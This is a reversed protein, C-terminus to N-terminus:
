SEMGLLRAVIPLVRDARAQDLSIAEVVRAAGRKAREGIGRREPPQFTSFTRRLLPLLPEFQANDLGAIWDNIAVFLTDDHILIAGSGQLFGEIWAAAEPPSVAPSLALRMRRTIVDPAFTGNDRLLRTARGNVIGNIAGDDAISYLAATWAATHATDALTNLAGHVANLRTFMARAADDDLAYCAPLLGICIRTVLGDVVNRVAEARAATTRVDGYRAVEILAPLADMLIATDTTLAAVDALRRVIQDAADALDALLVHGLHAVIASLENIAESLEIARTVAADRVTNGWRSATILQVIMEPFWQVDWYEHFTGTSRKKGRALRGWAIGLVNLRHLLISCALDRPIRLDFDYPKMETSIKFKLARQQAEFDRQLPVMPTKPPISGIGTGVILRTEILRMPTSDGRCFVALAAENMEDLTPVARGRLGALMEALRVGDIVQATSASLDEGRLLAAVRALWRASVQDPPTHWLHAYWGPSAIGAGYGNQMSLRDDTWPAWTAEVKVSALNKLRETDAKASGKAHRRADSLAPVHWAGCVVAVREHQKEAARITKRMWAERAAERGDDGLIMFSDAAADTEPARLTTMAEAIADFLALPDRQGDADADSVANGQEILSDWWREGDSYGAARALAGLPDRRVAIHEQQMPDLPEAHPEDQTESASDEQNLATDPASDLVSEADAAANQAWALSHKQPLDMFAVPISRSLAYRIAVWEPSFDAFPYWVAQEPQAPNYVLLAVPPQMADDNALSLVAEADPPGEILVADPQLATLGALLARASGVGHHRVGFLHVSM